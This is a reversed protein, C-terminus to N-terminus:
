LTNSWSRLRIFAYHTLLFIISIFLSTVNQSRLRKFPVSAANHYRSTRFLENIDWDFQLWFNNWTKLKKLFFRSHKQHFFWFLNFFVLFLLYSQLPHDNILASDFTIEYKLNKSSFKLTNKTFFDFIGWFYWYFLSFFICKKSSKSM